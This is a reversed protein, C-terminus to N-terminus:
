VGRASAVSAMDGRGEVRAARSGGLMKRLSLRAYYVQSKSTGEAIGLIQAIERHAFGEVDHLVFAARYGAPLDGIARELDIRAAAMEIPAAPDLTRGRGPDGELSSTAHATKAARSRLHDLCANMALRHLWTALTSEGRFSSLKRYALLFIEQLLDEADSANGLMRYAVNYLRTAHQRYLEEFATGTGQQCRVLLTDEARM